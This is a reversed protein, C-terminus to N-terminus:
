RYPRFINPVSGAPPPEPELPARGGRCPTGSAKRGTRKIHSQLVIEIVLTFMLINGALAHSLSLSISLSGIHLSNLKLCPSALDLSLPYTLRWCNCNSSELPALAPHRSLHTSFTLGFIGAVSYICYAHGM